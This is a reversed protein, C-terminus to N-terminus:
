SRWPRCGSPERINRFYYFLRHIVYSFFITWWRGWTNTEVSLSQGDM